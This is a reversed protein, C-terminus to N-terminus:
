FDFSLSPIETGIPQQFSYHATWSVPGLTVTWNNDNPCGAGEATPTTVTFTGSVPPVPTGGNKGTGGPITTESDGAATAPNQGPVINTPNGRNHCFTGASATFSVVIAVDANGLGAVIGGTCSYSYTTGTISSSPPSCTVASGHLYHPQAALLALPTASIILAIVLRGVITRTSM